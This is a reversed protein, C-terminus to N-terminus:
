GRKLKALRARADAPEKYVPDAKGWVRLFTTYNEIARDKMGKQEYLRALRYYYRPIIPGLWHVPKKIAREYSAIASDIMGREVYARPLIDFPIPIWSYNPIYGNGWPTRIPWSATTLSDFHQFDRLIPRWDPRIEAPRHSALLRAAKLANGYFHWERDHQLSDEAHQRSFADLTERMRQLRTAVSDLKCTQVDLLGLSFESFWLGISEPTRALTAYGSLYRRANKWDSREFAIWGRLWLALAIIQRDYKPVAARECKALTADAENLRGAWVLYFARWWTSRVRNSSTLSLRSDREAWKIAEDYHETIFHLKALPVGWDPKMRLVQECKAVAEEYRGYMMLIEAMSELPNADGPLLGASRDLMEIGKDLKGHFAYLYGLENYVEPMAPNLILTKEHEVIAEFQFGNTELLFAYRFRIDPDNPFIDVAAKMLAVADNAPGYRGWRKLLSVALSSDGRWILGEAILFKEKETARSINQKARDWAIAGAPQDGMDFCADGLRKWAIAFTSDEKVALELYHRGDKFNFKRYELKGREYLRQAEISSSSVEAIPKVSASTSIQSVGMGKSVQRALDDVIGDEKLLSELERGRARIPSGLREGTNVDILELEALFMPGAKTYRGVGMVDIGARKCLILGTERDIFEVTDKEIQKMMERMWDSRTVRIYKSDGLTTSLVGPLVNRLYELSGDGTNNELSIFAIGRPHSALAQDQLLPLGIFLGMAVVVLALGAATLSRRLAKKQKKITVEAAAITGGPAEVGRAIKLDALLEEATQYREEPSKALAKGIIQEVVDPV